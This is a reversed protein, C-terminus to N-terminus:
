AATSQLSVGQYHISGRKIRKFGRDELAPGFKRVSLPEEQNDRCWEQYDAHLASSQGESGPDRECREELWRLVNDESRRYEATAAKVATPEDLGHTQWELCGRFAWALIAPAENRLTDALTTDRRLHEPGTEGKDPNWFRQEFSILALRRWIGHDAGTVRPRYNTCLVLKHSQEFEFFDKHLWRARIRSEGTLDKLLTEDLRGTQSTEVCAVLRKGFLDARETSHRDSAGSMLMNPVAKMSYDSGLMDMVAGLLTSKGNAGDGVFIPMIQERVDGTLSYGFFRQLYSILEGDGAFTSKLFRQWTESEASADFATPCLKTILDDWRHTRLEGTRLDLTGNECNLLWPDSDLEEPRVPLYSRALKLMAAIGPASATRTAFKLADDSGTERAEKWILDPMEQALRQATAEDDTKWRRGDWVLWSKWAHCFRTREGHRRAFRLANALDTRGEPERVPRAEPIGLQRLAEARSGHKEVARVADRLEKQIAM